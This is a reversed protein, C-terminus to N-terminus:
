AATVYFGGFTSIFLLLKVRAHLAQSPLKPTIHYSRGDTPKGDKVQLKERLNICWGRSASREGLWFFLPFSFSPIGVEKSPYQRDAAYM